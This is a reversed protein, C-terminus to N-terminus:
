FLSKAMFELGVIEQWGYYQSVIFSCKTIEYESLQKKLWPFALKTASVGAM